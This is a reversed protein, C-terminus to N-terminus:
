GNPAREPKVVFRPTRGIAAVGINPWTQSSSVELQSRWAEVGSGPSLLSLGGMLLLVLPGGLPRVSLPLLFRLWGAEM